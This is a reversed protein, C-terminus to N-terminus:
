FFFSPALPIFSSPPLLLFSSFLFYPLFSQLYLSSPIASSPLISPIFFFSNCLFFPYFTYLLLFSPLFTYLLLLHLSSSFISPYSLLHLSSPFISPYSLPTFFFSLHLSLISPTFFFSLHLSLISPTFFFSLHISLISPTFFFSLHLSLISPTFLLGHFIHFFQLFDFISRYLFLSSHLYPGSSSTSLELSSDTGLISPYLSSPLLFLLPIPSLLALLFSSHFAYGSVLHRRIKPRKNKNKHDIRRPNKLEFM